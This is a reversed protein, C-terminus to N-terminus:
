EYEGTDMKLNWESEPYWTAIFGHKAINSDFWKWNIYGINKEDCKKLIDRYNCNKQLGFYEYVCQAYWHPGLWMKEHKIKSVVYNIFDSEKKSVLFSNCFEEVREHPHYTIYNKNNAFCKLDNLNSTKNILKYDTDLYIGGLLKLVYIRLLDSKMAPHELSDFVKKLVPPMDPINNDNWFFYKFDPHREKIEQMWEKLMKPIRKNGLWIQHINKEM